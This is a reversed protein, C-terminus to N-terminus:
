AESAAHGEVGRERLADCVNLLHRKMADEAAAADGGCIADIIELHEALSGAPGGSRLNLRFQHRVAQGKLRHIVAAATGHGSINLVAEHLRNNLEAYRYLDGADIAQRMSGGLSQLMRRDEDKLRAAAQAACMAELAARVELIEIAESVPVSRVRAGRNQIREVLGETALEALAARVTARSAEYAMCIDQEILRQNPALDGRSIADRLRSVVTQTATLSEATM